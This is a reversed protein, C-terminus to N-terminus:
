VINNVENKERKKNLYIIAGFLAFGIVSVMSGVKLGPTEYRLEIHHSGKPVLIGTYHENARLLEVSGGDMKATWANSYPISMVLYRDEPVNIEGSVSNNGFVVNELHYDSLEKVYTDYNNMNKQVVRINEYTYTGELEFSITIYEIKDESNGFYFMYGTKGFNYRHGYPLYQVHESYGNSTEFDIWSATQDDEILNETDVFNLGKISLYNEVNAEGNFRIYLKADNDTVIIRNNEIKIGEDSDLTYNIDKIQSYDVKYEDKVDDVVAVQMLAEQKEITDLANWNDYSIAKNYTYGFPVFYDNQYINYNGYTGSANFGYPIVGDYNNPTIYYKVNALTELEARNDYGNIQISFRDRLDMKMRFSQDDSNTISWYFNTSNVNNIISANNTLHNGSYRFFRDDNKTYERIAYAESATAFNKAGDLSLLDSLVNKGRSSLHYQGIYFINMVILLIMVLEKISTNFVKKNIKLHSAIFFLVVFLVPVFGRENRSWASFVSLGMIGVIALLLYNRNEQLEEWTSVLSYAIPLAIAFSWRESVYAFGNMFFGCAPICVFILCMLVFIFENKYKKPNKVILALALLTPAAYGMELDYPYDNGVFAVYLREYFFRSYLLPVPHALGMRRDGLYAIVMPGLIIGAMMLGVFAYALTSLLKIAVQKLDSKYIILARTIGYIASVVAEMYFFYFQSISGLFVAIIFVFPKDNQMIKEVGLILLPLYMFPTLFYKHLTFNKLGWFSFCYVIAGALTGLTYKKKTYFCLESFFVGGLYIRLAPDFMYFIYMYKEPVFVSLPAIADGVIDGHLTRIIDSGEGISFDWLPIILKHNEFLNKIIQRLHRSYYFLIRFHQNMGDSTANVNTKGNAVLYLIYSLICFLFIGSYILYYKKRSFEKNTKSTLQEM